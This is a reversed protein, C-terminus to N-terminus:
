SFVELFDEPIKKLFKTSFSSMIGPIEESPGGAIGSFFVGGHPGGFVEGPIGECIGDAIKGSIEGCHKGSTRRSIM